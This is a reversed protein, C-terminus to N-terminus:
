LFAAESYPNHQQKTKSKVVASESEFASPDNNRRSVTIKGRSMGRGVNDGGDWNLMSGRLQTFYLTNMFPNRSSGASGTTKRENIRNFILNDTYMRMIELQKQRRESM